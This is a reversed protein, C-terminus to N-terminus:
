VRFGLLGLIGYAGGGLPKEPAGWSVVTAAEVHAGARVLLRVVEAHGKEAAIHLPTVGDQLHM